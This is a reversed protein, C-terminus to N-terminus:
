QQRVSVFDICRELADRAQSPRLQHLAEQAEQQYKEMVSISYRLGGYETAFATIRDINEKSFQKQDIISVIPTRKDTPATKLAYILPLTVKGDQVDNGTPKGIDASQMYDFLDDKIQFCLGINEGFRKLHALEEQTCGVSLAGVMACSAFLMATKKHIIRLYEEETTTSPLPNVLQLLEGDALTMGIESITDLIKINQTKSASNLSKALIYDGSLVAIKNTWRANVSARGRRQMTDDVVDDHVLSATHLLEISAAGYLTGQQVEGLLKACLITIIPRLRKGGVSMVYDHVQKLLPNDSKLEAKFLKEFEQLETTIPAKIQQIDNM